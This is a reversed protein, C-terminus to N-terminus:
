PEWLVNERALAALSRTTPSRGNASIDELIGAAGDAKLELRAAPLCCMSSVIKIANQLVDPSTERSLRNILFTCGLLRHFQKKGDESIALSLLAATVNKRVAVNSVTVLNAMAKVAGAAVVEDRGVETLSCVQLIKAACAQVASNEDNLLEVCTPVTGSGGAGLIAAVGGARVLAHSANPNAPLNGCNAIVQMAACRLKPDEENDIQQLLFDLIDEKLLRKVCEVRSSIKQLLTYCIFKVGVSVEESSLIQVTNSVTKTELMRACGTTVAAVHILCRVARVVVDENPLLTLENVAEVGGAKIFLIVNKQMSLTSQDLVELSHLIIDLDENGLCKVLKSVGQRGFALTVKKPALQKPSDKVELREFRDAEM